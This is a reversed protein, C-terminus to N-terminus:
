QDNMKMYKALKEEAVQARKEAALAREEADRLKRGLNDPSTSSYLQSVLKKNQEDTYERLRKKLYENEEELIPYRDARQERRFRWIALPICVIVTAVVAIAVQVKESM